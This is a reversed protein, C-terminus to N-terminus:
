RTRGSADRHREAAIRPLGGRAAVAAAHGAMTIPTFHRKLREVVRDFFRLKVETALHMGPFFSLEKVRDGGLFDLPHLLFSPEVRCLKCLAVAARLYARALATSYGSLYLLYSLHIPVRLFPMTTVPLELLTEGALDWRYPKLPRLGESFTGFLRGRKEREAEPMGRARWFYYLRALPGLFTPFTSADYLYGRRALVRLVEASFSFGPGRFGRPRAGTAREIHEEATAIERDVEQPSYRDLWPEHRFSHNGIEHGAEAFARLAAANKELAADQGVVFVTITLGHRRLRELVIEACADLYTPFSEWGADGHTKMYAWLNDLDLSISAM